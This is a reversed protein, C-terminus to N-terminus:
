CDFYVLDDDDFFAFDLEQQNWAILQVPKVIMEEDITDIDIKKPKRFITSDNKRHQVYFSVEYKNGLKSIIKGVFYKVKKKYLVTM